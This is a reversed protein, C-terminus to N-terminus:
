GMGGGERGGLGERKEGYRGERRGRKREARGKERGAIERKEGKRGGGQQWVCVGHAMWYYLPREHSTFLMGFLAVIESSPM